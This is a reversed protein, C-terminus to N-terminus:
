PKGRKFEFVADRTKQAFPHSRLFEDDYFGLSKSIYDSGSKFSDSKTKYYEVFDKSFQIAKDIDKLKKYKEPNIDRLILANIHEKIPLNPFLKETYIRLTDDMIPQNLFGMLDGDNRAQKEVELNFQRRRERLADSHIQALEMTANILNLERKLAEPFEPTKKYNLDHEIISHADSMITRLQIEFKCQGLQEEVKKSQVDMHLDRYGIKDSGLSKAKDEEKLVTFMEGILRSILKIDETYLCVIRIGVIDSMQEFPKDYGKRQIKEKFSCADKVRSVVYATKFKETKLKGKILTEAQHAMVEYIARKSEFDKTIEDLEDDNM